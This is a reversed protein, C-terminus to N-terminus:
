RTGSGHQEGEPTDQSQASRAAVLLQLAPVDIPKALTTADIRTLFERIARPTTRGVLFVVRPRLSVHDDLRRWLAPADLDAAQADYLVLDFREVGEIRAWASLADDSVSV